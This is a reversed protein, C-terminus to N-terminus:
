ASSGSALDAPRAEWRERDHRRWDPDISVMAQDAADIVPRARESGFLAVAADHVGWGYKQVLLAALRPTERGAAVDSERGSAYDRVLAALQEVAIRDDMRWEEARVEGEEVIM